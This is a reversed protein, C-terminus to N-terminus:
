LTSEIAKAIEEGRLNKAVIKGERDLLIIFPIGGFQYLDMVESGANPALLQAWSMGEEALAKKWADASKDISVSLFEVDKGQFKAYTKKLNPVEGRCPGCWSAWFDILLLKGRYTSPGVKEGAENEISFEPAVQGVQMRLIREREAAMKERLAQAPAYGPHAAELKQLSSEILEEDELPSLRRIAALVSTSGAYKDLIYMMRAEEDKWNAEYLASSLKSKSSPDAFETNYVNQSIAIMNQYGRYSNFNLENMIENKPSGAIKVFPPNKIIIKATDKGRFDVVMDEDEIWVQAQQWFSCHLNYVGPEAGKVEMSYNNDADLESFALTDVNQGHREILAVKFGPDAFQVHGSIRVADNRSCSALCLVSALWFFLIKKM